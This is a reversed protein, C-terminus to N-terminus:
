TPRESVVLYGNVYLLGSKLVLFSSSVVNLSNDTHPLQTFCASKNQFRFLTVFKSRLWKASPDHGEIYLISFVGQVKRELFRPKFRILILM